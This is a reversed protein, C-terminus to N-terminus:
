ALVARKPLGQDLITCVSALTRPRNSDGAPFSVFVRRKNPPPSITKPPLSPRHVTGSTGLEEVATRVGSAVDRFVEDQKAWPTVPQEDRSMCQLHAFPAGQWDVPRLIVHIAFAKGVKYRELAYQMEISYCYDSALFDPSILLLIVSAAKPYENVAFAWDTRAVIQRDHWESITGQRRLVSRHKELQERLPEDEHAYSYFVTVPSAAERQEDM